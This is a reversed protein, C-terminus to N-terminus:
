FSKTAIKDSCKLIEKKPPALIQVKEKLLDYNKFIFKLDFDNFPIIFNIESSNLIKLICTLYKQSTVKPVKFSKDFCQELSKPPNLDVGYINIKNQNIKKVFNYFNETFSYSKGYSMLLINM